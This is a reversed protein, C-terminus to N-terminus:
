KSSILRLYSVNHNFFLFLVAEIVGEERSYRVRWEIDM